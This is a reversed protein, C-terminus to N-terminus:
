GECSWEKKNSPDGGRFEVYHTSIRYGPLRQAVLDQWVEVFLDPDFSARINSASYDLQHLASVKRHLEVADADPFEKQIKSWGNDFTGEFPIESGEVILKFHTRCEMPPENRVWQVALGSEVHTSRQQIPDFTITM